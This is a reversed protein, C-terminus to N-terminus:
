GDKGSQQLGREKSTTVLSLIGAFVIIEVNCLLLSLM